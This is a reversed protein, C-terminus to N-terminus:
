YTYVFIFQSSFFVAPGTLLRPAAHLERSVTCRPGHATRTRVTARPPHQVSSRGPRFPTISCRPARRLGHVIHCDPLHWKGRACHLALPSARVILASSGDLRGTWARMVYSYARVYTRSTVVLTTHICICHVRGTKLFFFFLVRDSPCATGHIM